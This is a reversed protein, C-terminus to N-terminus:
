AAHNDESEEPHQDAPEIKQWAYEEIGHDDRTNTIAELLSDFIFESLVEYDEAVLFRYVRPKQNAYEALAFYSAPIRDQVHFSYGYITRKIPVAFLVDAGELVRPFDAPVASM